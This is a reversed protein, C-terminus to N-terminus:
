NKVDPPWLLPTEAEAGTRGIFIWYKNGKPNFSRIKHLGLSEWSDETVGCNKPAWSDKHDLEWMWVHSSSSIMANIPHVKTLLTIGRSKLLSDLNAMTKRGLVLCRKIEHNCDGNATIKSGLFIFLTWWQKWQKGMQWSTIPGYAMIKM